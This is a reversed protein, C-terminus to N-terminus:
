ELWISESLSLFSGERTGSVEKQETPPTKKIVEVEIVSRIKYEYLDADYENLLALMENRTNRLEPMRAAAVPCNVGQLEQTSFNKISHFRLKSEVLNLLVEKAEAASFSGKVLTFQNSDKM